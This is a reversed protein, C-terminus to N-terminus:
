SVQTSVIPKAVARRVRCGVTGVVGFRVRVRAWSVFVRSGSVDGDSSSTANTEARVGSWCLVIRRKMRDCLFSERRVSRVLVRLPQLQNLTLTDEALTFVMGGGVLTWFIRTDHQSSWAPCDTVLRFVCAVALMGIWVHVFLNRLYDALKGTTQHRAHFITLALIAALWLLRGMAVVLALHPTWGPSVPRSKWAGDAFVFFLVLSLDLVPSAAAAVLACRQRRYMGVSHGVRWPSIQLCISLDHSLRRCLRCGIDADM